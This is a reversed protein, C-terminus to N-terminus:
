FRLFYSGDRGAFYAMEKETWKPCLALPLWPPPIRRELEERVQAFPQELYPSVLAAAGRGFLLGTILRM